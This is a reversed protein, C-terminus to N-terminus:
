LPSSTPPRPPEKTTTSLSPSATSKDTVLRLRSSRHRTRRGRGGCCDAAGDGAGACTPHSRHGAVAAGRVVSPRPRATPCHGRCGRRGARSPGAPLRVVAHRGDPRRARRHPGPCGAAVALARVSELRSIDGGTLMDITALEHQARVRHLELRHETAIAAAREFRQRARNLDTLRECRGLVELAECAVEPLGLPEAVDLAREAFTVAEVPAGSGIAAQAALADLRADLAAGGQGRAYGVHEMAVDWREASVAARALSLRIACVDAPPDHDPELLSASAQEARTLKGAAALVDVLATTAELRLAADAALSSARALALEATELAGRSVADRGLALLLPAARQPDTLEALELAVAAHGVRRTTDTEIADLARGALLAREPALLRQLVAERTLMHRFRFARSDETDTELLQADVCRRLADLVAGVDLGTMPLILSWDFRRGLVAAAELVRGAAPGLMGIRCAVTDTFTENLVLPAQQHATWGVGDYSVVGAAEWGALLEEVFFPIGEAATVLDDLLVGPVTSGGLCASAM